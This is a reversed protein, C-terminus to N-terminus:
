SQSEYNDDDNYDVSVAGDNFECSLFAGIFNFADWSDFDFNVRCNEYWNSNTEMINIKDLKILSPDYGSVYLGGRTFAAGVNHLEVDISFSNYERPENKYFYLKPPPAGRDISMKVGESGQYFQTRETDPSPRFGNCSSLILILLLSLTILIKSM